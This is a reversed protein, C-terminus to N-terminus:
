YHTGYIHQELDSKIYNFEYNFFIKSLNNKAQEIGKQDILKHELAYEILQILFYDLKM